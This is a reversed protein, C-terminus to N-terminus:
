MNKLRDLTLKAVTYDTDNGYKFLEDRWQKNTLEPHELRHSVYCGCVQTGKGQLPVNNYHIIDDKFIKELRSRQENYEKRQQPTLNDIQADPQRGYSDCFFYGDENKLCCVWHGEYKSKLLYLIIVCNSDRFLQEPTHINNLQSYTIMSAHPNLAQMEVSNLPYYLMNSDNM